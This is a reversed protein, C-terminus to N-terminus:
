EGLADELMGELEAGMEDQTMTEVPKYDGNKDYDAPDYSEYSNDESCATLIVTVLLMSAFLTIHKKFKLKM